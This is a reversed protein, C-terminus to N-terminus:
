RRHPWAPIGHGCYGFAHYADEAASPGIVPIGDPMFAEMGAWCRVISAEAMIPFLLSTTRASIALGDFDIVTRNQDRYPTGCHGGGIIM